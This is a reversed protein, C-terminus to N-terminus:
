PNPQPRLEGQIRNIEYELDEISIMLEEFSPIEGFLMESMSDYDDRMQDYRYKPPVLKFSGPVAEEYKAWVRPYFKMKFVVVKQLLDLHKLATEKHKTQSIRYLDYYHRSYRMPMDLHEPRNAEHHLITVKEWFSREASSTVVTTSINSSINPYQEFIYPTVTRYVSPTWAALPGIELRISQQMSEAKFLEPYNFRVTQLDHREIETNAEEGILESMDSIFVQLFEDALFAEARINVMKNFADQKTKSREYWPEDKKYGLLRWDLILDLDESFRQILGFCKSLSTGGKFTLHKQYRSKHFLYDLVLCIWYDKEIIAEHVGMKQAANRFVIRREDQPLKLISYLDNLGV